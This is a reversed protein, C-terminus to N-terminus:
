RSPPHLPGPDDDDYRMDRYRAFYDGQSRECKQFQTPICRAREIRLPYYVTPCCVKM